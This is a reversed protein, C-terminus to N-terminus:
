AETTNGDAGVDSFRYMFYRLVYPQILSSHFASM